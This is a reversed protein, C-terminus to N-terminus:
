RKKKSTLCFVVSAILTFVCSVTGGFTTESTWMSTFFLVLLVFSVINVVIRINDKRAAEQARRASEERQRLRQLELEKRRRDIEEGRRRADEAAERYARQKEKEIDIRRQYEDQKEKEALIIREFEPPRLATGCYECFVTEGYKRRVPAGCNPCNVLSNKGPM